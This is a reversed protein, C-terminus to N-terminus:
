LMNVSKQLEVINTHTYISTVKLSSHGLLKQVNVINVNKSVLNSAFSHRLIHCSVNKTINAAKAAKKLCKNIYESSVKGSKESAFFRTSKGAPRIFNNYNSLELYLKNSIPITRDKNGKGAIVHILKNEFDVDNISLNLCESIRLGTYYLTKIVIKVLKNDVTDLLKKFENDNLYCREKQQLKIPELMAAVNKYYIDRKLAYSYFSRLVYIARNITAPSCGKIEKIYAVYDELITLTIDEIYIRCNFKEQVYDLFYRLEKRYGKITESSKNTIVLYNIFNDILEKLM